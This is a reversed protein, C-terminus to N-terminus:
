SNNDRKSVTIVQAGANNAENGALKEFRQKLDEETPLPKKQPLQLIAETQLDAETRLASIREKIYKDVEEKSEAQDEEEDKVAAAVAVHMGKQVDSSRSALTNMGTQYANINAQHKKESGLKKVLDNVQAMNDQMVMSAAFVQVQQQLQLAAAGQSAFADKTRKTNLRAKATKKAATEDGQKLSVDVQKQLSNMLRLQQNEKMKMEVRNEMAADDVDELRDEISKRNGM